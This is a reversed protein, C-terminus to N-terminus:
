MAEVIECGQMIVYGSCGYAEAYKDIWAKCKPVSSFDLHLEMDEYDDEIEMSLTCGSTTKMRKEKTVEGVRASENNLEYM